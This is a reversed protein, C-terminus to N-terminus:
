EHPLSRIFPVALIDPASRAFGATLRRVCADLDPAAPVPLSRGGPGLDAKKTVKLDEPGIVGAQALTREVDLEKRVKELARITPDWWTEDALLDIMLRDTADETVPDLRFLHHAKPDPHREDCVRRAVAFAIRARATAHTRPLVRPGVFAGDPGLIAETTWWGLFDGEGIRAVWLRATLLKHLDPM